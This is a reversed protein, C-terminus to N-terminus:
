EEWAPELNLKYLINANEFLLGKAIHAAQVESLEDRAVTDALFEFLAQRGQRAGLYFTEAWYHGDAVTVM